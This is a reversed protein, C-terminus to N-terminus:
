LHVYQTKVKCSLRIEDYKKFVKYIYRYLPNRTDMDYLELLMPFKTTTTAATTPLFSGEDTLHVIIISVQKQTFGRLFM